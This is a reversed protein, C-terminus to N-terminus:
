GFHISFLNTENIHGWIHRKNYEIINSDTRNGMNQPFGARWMHSFTELHKQPNNRPTQGALPAVFM